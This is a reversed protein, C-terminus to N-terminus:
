IGSSHNNTNENTSGNGSNTNTETSNTNTNTVASTNLLQLLNTSSKISNIIGEGEVKHCCPLGSEELKASNEQVLTLTTPVRTEWEEEVQGEIVQLEEAISLYEEEDTEAVLDGGLWIDGTELYYMVTECFEPRVPVLVRAMGAQKFAQFILDDDEQQFLDGWDCREAWYYPYFLYSMIQWDFAQEFFKVQAVYEDLEPNLKIQSLPNSYKDGCANLDEYLDKGMERCFPRMIMDICARKLERQEIVRKMAPPVSQEKTESAQAAEEAANSAQNSNEELMANYSATFQNFLNTQWLTKVSEKLVCKVNVSGWYSRIRAYTVMMPLATAVNPAFDINIPIAPKTTWSNAYNTGSGIFNTGITMDCFAPKPNTSMAKYEYQYSGDIRDAEYDPPIIIDSLNDSVTAIKHEVNKSFSKTIILPEAPLSPVSVGYYLGAAAANSANISAANTIGFSQLTKPENTDEEEQSQETAAKEPPTYALLSKFLTAPEPVLFEFMLRKGYNVLRNTYILDIWRYIGTVHHEGARNDFGHKNNEEFEKIIKSTRKSSVKQVIRDLARRTLEEAYTKAQTNSYSSSNTSSFDAHADAKIDAGYVKASVGFSGGFNSTKEEEIVNAIESNLENRTTTTTDTLHEMETERSTETTLETRILNRTSREKYERALINEIHSVEGPVYCCVEQEVRRFDAIGLRNVGHLEGTCSSRLWKKMCAIAEQPIVVKLESVRKFGASILNAYNKVIHDAVLLQICAERVRKSKKSLLQYFLQDFVEVVQAPSLTLTTADLNPFLSIDQKEFLECSLDYLTPHIAQVQTYKTFGGFSALYAALSTVPEGEKGRAECASVRSSAIDPSFVFRLKRTQAKLHQPSRVSVFRFLDSKISINTSM